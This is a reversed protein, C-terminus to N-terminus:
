AGISLLFESAWERWDRFGGIDPIYKDEFCRNSSLMSPFRHWDSENNVIPLDQTPFSNRLQKAWQVFTINVPIIATMDREWEDGPCRGAGTGM